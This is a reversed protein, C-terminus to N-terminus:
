LDSGALRGRGQSVLVAAEREAVVEGRRWSLLEMKRKWCCMRVGGVCWVKGRGAASREAVSFVAKWGAASLDERKWRGCAVTERMLVSAVFSGGAAASCCCGAVEEDGEVLSASRDVAEWRWRLELLWLSAVGVSESRNAKM